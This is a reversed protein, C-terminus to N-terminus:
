GRMGSAPVNFVGGEREGRQLVEREARALARKDVDLLLPGFVTEGGLAAHQVVCACSAPLSVRPSRRTARPQRELGHREPQVADGVNDLKVALGIARPPREGDFVFAAPGFGSGM